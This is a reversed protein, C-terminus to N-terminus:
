GRTEQYTKNRCKSCEAWGGVYSWEPACNNGCFVYGCKNCKWLIDKIVGCGQCKAM